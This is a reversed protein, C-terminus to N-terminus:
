LQYQKALLILSFSHSGQVYSFGSFNFFLIYDFVHAKHM